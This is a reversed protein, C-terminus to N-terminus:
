MYLNINISAWSIFTETDREIISLEDADWNWGLKGLLGIGGIRVASLIEASLISNIIRTNINAQKGYYIIPKGPATREWRM